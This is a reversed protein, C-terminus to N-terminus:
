FAIYGNMINASPSKRTEPGLVGDIKGNYYGAKSYREQFIKIIKENGENLLMETTHAIKETNRDQIQTLEKARNRAMHLFNGFAVPHTLIAMGKAVSYDENPDFGYPVGDNGFWYEPYPDVKGKSKVSISFHLHPGSTYTGTNGSLAIVDGRKVLTEDEVLIRDLHYYGSIIDGRHLILVLNGGEYSDIYDPINYKKRKVDIVRGDAAALIPTGSRVQYDTGNHPWPRKEKGNKWYLDGFPSTIRPEDAFCISSVLCLITAGLFINFCYIKM